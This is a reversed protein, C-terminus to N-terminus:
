KEVEFSCSSLHITLDIDPFIALDQWTYLVYNNSLGTHLNTWLTWLFFCFGTLFPWVAILSPLLTLVNCWDICFRWTGSIAPVLIADFHIKGGQKECL